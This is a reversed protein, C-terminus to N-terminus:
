DDTGASAVPPAGRRDRLLWAAVGTLVFAGATGALSVLQVLDGYQRGLVLLVFVFLAAGGAALRARSRGARGAWLATALLAAYLALGTAYYTVQVGESFVLLIRPTLLAFVPFLGLALTASQRVETAPDLHDEFSWLAALILGTLISLATVFHGTLIIWEYETVTLAGLAIQAPLLVLALTLGARVKRSVGRRWATATVGLIVFGTIMAVLRHFWEIFSMWDAPFLGFVAGDCLPWRQACTLGAGAAATFVGLLMLIGTLAATGAVLHRFRYKM